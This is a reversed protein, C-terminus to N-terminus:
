LINKLDNVHFSQIKGIQQHTLDKQLNDVFNLFFEKDQDIKLVLKIKLMFLYYNTM